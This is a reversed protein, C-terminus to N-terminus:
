IEVLLICSNEMGEPVIQLLEPLQQDGVSQEEEGGVFEPWDGRSPAVVFFEDM